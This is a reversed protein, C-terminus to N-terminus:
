DDIAELYVLFGFWDRLINSTEILRNMRGKPVNIEDGPLVESDYNGVKKGNRIIKLNKTDASESLKVRALYYAPTEKPAYPVFAPGNVQGSVNVYYMATPIFVQDGNKLEMDATMDRMIWVKELDVPIDVFSGDVLRRVFARKLDAPEKPPSLKEDYDLIPGGSIRLIDYVKYGELLPYTGPKNIQGIVTVMDMHEIISSAELIDGDKMDINQTSDGKIVDKLSLQIKAYNQTSIDFRKLVASDLYAKETLNGAMFILDRVTMGDANDYEGPFRVPGTIMVKGGSLKTRDYISLQDGDGLNMREIGDSADKLNLFMATFPAEANRKTNISKYEVYEQYARVTMGHVYKLLDGITEGELIEYLGPRVAEGKVRVTAYRIPVFITDGNTLTPNYKADGTDFFKFLDIREIRGDRHKLEVTRLSGSKNTGGALSLAESVSTVSAARYIGPNEVAGLVTVRFTRLKAISVSTEYKPYQKDAKAKIRKVVDELTLGTTDFEGVYPVVARGEPLIDVMFRNNVQKSKWIDVRLVDGPGVLYKDAIIEVKLVEPDVITMQHVLTEGVIYEHAVPQKEFIPQKENKRSTPEQEEETFINTGNETQKLLDNKLKDQSFIDSQKQACIGEEACLADAKEQASQSNAALSTLLTLALLLIIINSILKTRM